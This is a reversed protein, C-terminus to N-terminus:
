AIAPIQLAFMVMGLCLLVALSTAVLAHHAVMDQADARGVWWALAM